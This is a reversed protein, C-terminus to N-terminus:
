HWMAGCGHGIGLYGVGFWFMSLFFCLLYGRQPLKPAFSVFFSSLTCSTATFYFIKYYKKLM